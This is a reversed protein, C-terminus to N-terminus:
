NLPHTSSIEYPFICPIWCTPTSMRMGVPDVYRADFTCPVQMVGRRDLAIETVRYFDVVVDKCTMIEDPVGPLLKPAQSEM